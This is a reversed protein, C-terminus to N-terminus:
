QQRGRMGDIMLTTLRLLFQRVDYSRQLLNGPTAFSQVVSVLVDVMFQVPLDKRVLGERRGDEILGGLRRRIIAARHENIYQWLEPNRYELRQHVSLNVRGITDTLVEFFARLKDPVSHERRLREELTRDIRDFFRDLVAVALEHKSRYKKYITRKSMGLMGAIDDVTTVDFGHSLFLEEAGDLLRESTDKM